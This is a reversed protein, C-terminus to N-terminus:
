SGSCRPTLPSSLIASVRAVLKWGEAFRTWTQVVRIRRARTKGGPLNKVQDVTLIAIGTDRIVELAQEAYVLSAFFRTGGLEKLLIAKTQSFGSSHMYTVRDYLLRDLTRSDGELMAIRLAEVAQAFSAQGRAAAHAFKAPALALAGGGGLALVASRRSWADERTNM